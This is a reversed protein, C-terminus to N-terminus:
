KPFNGFVASLMNEEVIFGTNNAYQSYLNILIRMRVYVNFNESVDQHFQYIHPTNEAILVCDGPAATKTIGNVTIDFIGSYIVLVINDSIKREPVESPDRYNWLSANLVIFREHTLIYSMSEVTQPPFYDQLRDKSENGYKCTM